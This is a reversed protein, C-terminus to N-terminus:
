LELPIERDCWEIENYVYTGSFLFGPETGSAPARYANFNVSDAYMGGDHVHAGADNYSFGQSRFFKLVKNKAATEEQAYITTEGGEFDGYKSAWMWKVIIKEM